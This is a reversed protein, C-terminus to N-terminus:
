NRQEQPRQRKEERRLKEVAGAYDTRTDVQIGRQWDDIAQNPRVQLPDENGRPPEPAANRMAHRLVLLGCVILGAIFSLLWM